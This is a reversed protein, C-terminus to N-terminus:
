KQFLDQLFENPHIYFLILQNFYFFLHNGNPGEKEHLQDAGYNVQVEPQDYVFLNM